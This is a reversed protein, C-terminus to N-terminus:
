FRYRLEAGTSRPLSYNRVFFGLFGPDSTYQENLANRVYAAVSWRDSEVGVRANVLDVPDIDFTFPGENILFNGQHRWDVRAFLERDVDIPQGYQIALNYTLEPVGDPRTNLEAIEADLYGFGGSFEIRDGARWVFELEAGTIDTSPVNTTTRFPAEALILSQQQDSYDINFVAGNMSLANDAMSAKFGFEINDTTEPRTLNGTNFFGFRFGKAYTVYTMLDDSWDYSLQVKPQFQSDRATLRDAPNGDSDLNQITSGTTLDFQRTSYEDEDYRGAVTLEFADSLDINIQGYVGFIEDEKDDFRGFLSAPSGPEPALLLGIELHNVTKRELFEVGAIWRVPRDGTSTLRLDQFFVEFNDALDQYHDIPAGLMANEGLIPGFIGGVPPEGLAPPRAWSASGFIDQDLTVSSTVSTLTAFPLEIDIKASAETSERNEEGIIGREVTFDADSFSNVQEFTEFREQMAAGANIDSFSARLDISLNETPTFLLQARLSGQDIFDIDDGTTSDILGDTNRAFGTLRFAVKDEVLPGSVTGQLTLDNGQGYAIRAEGGLEERPGRTLINVAGAIAGNGYLAGQPGRLVEIRELDFLTGPNLADLMGAKVGDVTYSIPPFGQQGTTIGRITVFVVGARFGQRALFNPTQNVYSEFSDIGLREIEPASFTTIADPVDQLNEARQRATVVIEELVASPTEQAMVAPPAISAGAIGAALALRGSLHAKNM